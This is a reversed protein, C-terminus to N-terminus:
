IPYKLHIGQKFACTLIRAYLRGLLDDVHAFGTVHLGLGCMCDILNDVILSAMDPTFGRLSDTMQFYLTSPIWDPVCMTLTSTAFPDPAFKSMEGLQDFIKMKLESSESRSDMATRLQGLGVYAESKTGRTASKKRKKNAMIFFLINVSVGGGIPTALM